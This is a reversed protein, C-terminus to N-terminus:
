RREDDESESKHDVHHHPQVGFTWAIGYDFNHLIERKRKKGKERGQTTCLLRGQRRDMKEELLDTRESAGFSSVRAVAARMYPRSNLWCRRITKGKASEGYFPVGGRASFVVGYGGEDREQGEKAGRKKRQRRVGTLPHRYKQLNPWRMRRTRRNTGERKRRGEVSYM